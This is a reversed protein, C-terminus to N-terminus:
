AVHRFSWRSRHSDRTEHFAGLSIFLTIISHALTKELQSVSQATVNEQNRKDSQKVPKKAAFLPVTKKLAEFVIKRKEWVNEM